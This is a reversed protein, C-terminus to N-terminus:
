TGPEAAAGVAPKCKVMLQEASSFSSTNLFRFDKQMNTQVGERGDRFRVGARMLDVLLPALKGRFRSRFHVSDFSGPAPPPPRFSRPVCVPFRPTRKALVSLWPSEAPFGSQENQGPVAELRHVRHNRIEM